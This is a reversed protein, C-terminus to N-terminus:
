LRGKRVKDAVNDSNTGLFLHEPNVCKRNDCKHLVHLERPDGFTLKWAVRHAAQMWGDFRFSGYGSDNLGAVWNWCSQTKDVKSWFREDPTTILKQSRRM